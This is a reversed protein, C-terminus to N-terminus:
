KVVLESPSRYLPHVFPHFIHIQAGAVQMQVFPYLKMGKFNEDVFAQGLDNGDKYFNIIGRDLDILLGVVTGATFLGYKPPDKLYQDTDYYNKWRKGTFKDGSYFTLCWADKQRSLEKNIDISSSCVGVVIRPHM